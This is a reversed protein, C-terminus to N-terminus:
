LLCGKNQMGKIWQVLSVLELSQSPAIFRSSQKVTLAALSPKPPQSKSHQQRIMSPVIKSQESSKPLPKYGRAESVNVSPQISPAMKIPLSSGEKSQRPKM